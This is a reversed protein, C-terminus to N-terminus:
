IVRSYINKLYDQLMRRTSYQELVLQMSNLMMKIWSENFGQAGYEFYLPIVHYELLDHLSKSAEEESIVWGKEFWDVEDTWGDKTTLQIVGNAAAKMGSTGSAEEFRYPTNLWVDAGSVMRRALQWNYGPVIVVKNHFAEQSLKNNMAQLLEKGASDKPHAKGAIIIQVPKDANKLLQQLRDLDSTIMDPRKYSALRRSWAIILGDPDLDLGLENNLSNVLKNKRSKHAQWLEDYPIDQIKSFDISNEPFHWNEGVYKDLLRHIEPSVWTPMHVGNTVPVLEFEPWLKKAAEGHLISVANSVKANRLGLVTMSFEGQGYLEDKGMQFLNNIDTKLNDLYTNFYKEFLVFPFIDNGAAKLTHNTFVLRADIKDKAEEFSMGQDEIFRRAMEFVLFGSHGENMHYISPEIGLAALLRPGGIGLLIEQRIRTDQDGGYLHASIMRDEWLGNKDYNTDLLYLSVKGVRLEWARVWVLHDLIEIYVEIPEGEKNKALQMQYEEAHQEIYSEMQAGNDDFDQHFYGQHYFIGVAILPVGMDSAEKIFDGALVGLGGSYIQLWDVLGYELSFYAIPKEKLIKFKSNAPDAIYKDFWTLKKTDMYERFLRLNQDIEWSKNDLIDILKKKGYQSMFEGPPSNKRWGDGYLDIIPLIYHPNWTFWLNSILLNFKDEPTLELDAVTSATLNGLYLGYESMLEHMQLLSRELQNSSISEINIRLIPETNSLRANFRWNDFEMVLGDPETIKAAKFTSKFRDFIVEKTVGEYIIFNLEGSAFFESRYYSLLESMRKQQQSMMELVMLMPVAGNDAYFNDRFYFHSSSEGGFLANQEHMIKKFYSHGAKIQLEEGQNQKIEYRIPYINRYDFAIKEKPHQKLLHGALLAVILHGPVFDGKEDVFFCRDGDGDFAVGLDANEAVVRDALEKTNEPIAPNAQHHPFKANPEFFMESIELQPLRSFINRINIGGMGNGADVVLKLPKINEPNIFQLVHDAYEKEYNVEKFVLQQQMLDGPVSKNQSLYTDRLGFVDVPVVEKGMLKIGNWISPNHSATIMVGGDYGFKGLAFYLMDTTVMGLSDIRKNLENAAAVFGHFIEPSSERMDFGVVFREGPVTAFYAHAIKYAIEANLQSPYIGRVDYAHFIDKNEIVPLKQM